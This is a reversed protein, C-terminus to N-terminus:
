TQCSKMTTAAKLPVVEVELSMDGSRQLMTQALTGPNYFPQASKKVVREAAQQLRSSQRQRTALRLASM